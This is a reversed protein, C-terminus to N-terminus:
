NRGRSGDRFNTFIPIVEYLEVSIIELKQQGSVNLIAKRFCFEFYRDRRKQKAQELFKEMEGFYNKVKDLLCYFKEDNLIMWKLRKWPERRKRFIAIARKTYEHQQSGTEALNIETDYLVEINESHLGYRQKLQRLDLLLTEVQALIKSLLAVDNANMLLTLPEQMLGAEEAWTILCHQTLEFRLQIESVDRKYHKAKSLIILGKVCGSLCSLSFAVLGVSEVM